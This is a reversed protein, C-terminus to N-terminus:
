FTNSKEDEEGTLLEKLREIPLSGQVELMHKNAAEQTSRKTYYYAMKSGPVWGMLKCRIKVEREEDIKKRDCVDSFRDNWTHRCLHPAFDIPIGPVHKRLMTFIHNFSSRSIPSGTKSVILFDHRRVGDIVGRFNIIYDTIAAALEDKLKLKRPLTKVNPEHLRPDDPNDPLRRIYILNNRLDIDDICLNLLEGARVGLALMLEIILKNRGRVDSKWPNNIDDEIIAKRLLGESECTLGYKEYEADIHRDNQDPIRSKMREVMENLAWTNLQIDTKDTLKNIYIRGMYELYRYAYYMRESLTSTNVHQKIDDLITKNRRRYEALSAVKSNPGINERLKIVEKKYAPYCKWMDHCLSDLEPVNLFNGASIREVLNMHHKIEWVRLFKISQAAKVLTNYQKHAARLKSTLFTNPYFEPMGSETVIVPFREGNAFRTTKITLFETM